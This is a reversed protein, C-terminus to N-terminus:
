EGLVKLTEAIRLQDCAVAARLVKETHAIPDFTSLFADKDKEAQKKTKRLMNHRYDALRQKTTKM